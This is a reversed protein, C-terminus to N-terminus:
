SRPNAALYEKATEICRRAHEAHGFEKVREIHPLEISYVMKPLQNIIEAINISGEGVYLRADRGTYILGEKDTPIEKPGDCLHAFHLWERPLKKLEDLEVKSRYFHLTDIMIGANDRNVTNLVDVAQKLNKVDAWTVFELDVNLGYSKALDCLEAFKELYEDRNPTWISSLVSKAGLEAAVEMAPEYSQINVGEEIKALEIDHLKVGTNSMANKTQTLMKKNSALDYNPEGELGMYILRLGVYDYGTMSAIYVMEPPACGLVTLHALSFQNEM